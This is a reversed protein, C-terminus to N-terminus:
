LADGTRWDMGSGGHTWLPDPRMTPASLRSMQLMGKAERAMEVVTPLPTIGYEAAIELALQYTIWRDYGQPLTISETETAPVELQRLVMLHATGASLVPVFYLTGRVQSAVEKIQPEYYVGGLADPLSLSLSKLAYEAYEQDTLIRLPYDITGNRVWGREIRAPRPTNVTAGTGITYSAAGTLTVTVTQLSPATTPDVSVQDLLQQLATFADTIELATASAIGLLRHARAILTTCVVESM